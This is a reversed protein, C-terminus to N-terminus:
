INGHDDVLVKWTEDLAEGTYFDTKVKMEPSWRKWYYKRTPLDEFKDATWAPTLTSGQQYKKILKKNAM